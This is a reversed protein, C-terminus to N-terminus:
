APQGAPRTAPRPPAVPEPALGHRALIREIEPGRRRCALAAAFSIAAIGAAAAIDWGFPVWERGGGFNGAWSLLAIGGLWPLLWLAGRLHAPDSGRQRLAPQLVAGVAILALLVKVNDWGGWYVLLTAILFGGFAFAPALPLRLRRPLHPLEMRFVQLALPGTAISIVIAATVVAVLMDFPLFLMAFATAMNVALAVAPTDGRMTAFARPLAHSRAMGYLLRINAGTTGLGTGFPSILAAAHIVIGLWLLGAAAAVAAFPGLDGGAHLAGWGGALMADPLSAIYTGQLVVYLALAVLMALVLALPVTVQPNRVEGAMDVANRFGLFSFVVGGTSLAAFIGALGFPAFGGHASPDGSGTAAVLLAAAVIAPLVLKALTILSNIRAFLRAGFAITAAIALLLAVALLWGWPGFDALSFNMEGEAPPGNSYLWPALPALYRLLILTELAAVAAYSIWATWGMIWATMTGHTAEPLRAVGGSLPMLATVEAFCLAVALMALGGGLWALIAAPGAVQAALLPAFLWGSGIMGTVAIFTLGALGISRKLEGEAAEM